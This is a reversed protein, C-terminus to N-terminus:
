AITPKETSSVSHFCALPMCKKVKAILQKILLSLILITDSFFCPKTTGSKLSIHQTTRVSLLCQSCKYFGLFVLDALIEMLLLAVGGKEKLQSTLIM